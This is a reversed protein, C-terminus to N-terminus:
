SSSAPQAGAQSTQGPPTSKMAVVDDFDDTGVANITYADTYYETLSAVDILRFLEFQQIWTHEIQEEELRSPVMSELNTASHM